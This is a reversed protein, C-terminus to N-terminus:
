ANVPELLRSWSRGKRAAHAQKHYAYGTILPLALTAESYVMQEFTTDVKGWSSAEKLTSSSLAGDRVDAVTIQVAYKHMPAETGLIDAAVVIDQAFNKPVGGGIMLLGTTPNAIKLQTLEYFDKASDLSVKPKDGRAHQHAVLGFGASCDSFAPCFIPLDQEYASLVISDAGGQQPTKGNKVLYAGMERIFERSSYPRPDLSDAIKHTTEDCERLEEEDILTDYIRDIMLERLKGDETGAKMVDDAIWHRFGLAEFFDQDVINAGTSVIADVMNNRILDVFIQKLGASILSGALCLIVGCDQDRLMREYISAARALDRSSYAMHQMADVLPVVNHQKIDIHQIPQQLLEKKTAMAKLIDIRQEHGALLIRSNKQEEAEANTRKGFAQLITTISRGMDRKTEPRRKM